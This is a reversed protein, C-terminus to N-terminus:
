ITKFYFQKNSFFPNTMLYVEFLWGVVRLYRKQTDSKENRHITITPKKKVANNNM